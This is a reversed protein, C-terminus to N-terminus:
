FEGQASERVANACKLRVYPNRDQVALQELKPLVEQDTHEALINIAAVRVGPNTDQELTHLVAQRMESSWPLEQLVQLAELRVGANSDNHLVHLLAARVAPNSSRAGLVELTDYRIGPNDYSKVAYLLVQQIGPDDLSGELTFRREADLTIRVAGTQPDPAVRSIGRIRANTLDAGILAPSEPLGPGPSTSQQRLTWGLSFGVLLVAVAATARLASGAPWLGFGSRVLARWGTAERDLADELEYRCRVLLDPSPEPVARRDLRTHLRRLEAMARACAACAALHAELPARDEPTLEEYLHLALKEEVRKCDM